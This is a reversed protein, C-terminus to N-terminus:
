VFTHATLDIISGKLCYGKTTTCPMEQISIYNKLFTLTTFSCCGFYIYSVIDFYGLKCTYIRSNNRAKKDILSYYDTATNYGATGNSKKM